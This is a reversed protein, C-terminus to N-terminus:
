GVADQDAGELAELVLVGLRVVADWQERTVGAPVPLGEARSLVRAVREGTPLVVIARRVPGDGTSEGVALNAAATQNAPNSPRYWALEQRLTATREVPPGGDPGTVATLARLFRQRQVWRFLLADDEADEDVEGNENWHDTGELAELVLVGLRLVADWQEQTISLAEAAAPVPSGEASSLVEAVREGSPTVMIARHVQGDRTSEGVTLKEAVTLNASGYEVLEQRLTATREALTGGDSGTADTLATLFRQRQSEAGITDDGNEDRHDAGELAELVLVGLRLVADWQEQTVSLEEAVDGPVPSGAAHSLVEAVPAGLSAVVIVRHVRGARTVEGVALNAAASRNDPTYSGYRLLEFRLTATREALPGGGPGSVDVLSTLFRRRKLEDFSAGDDEEGDDGEDDEEDVDEEDDVDEERYETGELAVLALVGLRLVAKWQAGTIDVANSVQEPVPSGVARNLVEAAREGLSAVTIAQHVYGSWAVEEVALADPASTNDPTSSGYRLLEHRLKATREEATGGDPGTVDTLATLFRQRKAGEQSVMATEETSM